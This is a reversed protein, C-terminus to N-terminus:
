HGASKYQRTESEFVAVALWMWLVGALPAGYAFWPHVVLEGTRDLLVVAPFYAMFAIPIGFTLLFELVGGFIRLPYNGFNSFLTDLLSLFSASSLTRFSLAALLFRMAAEVLAGGILALVLYVVSGATWIIGALVQAAILM